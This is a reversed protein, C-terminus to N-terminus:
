LRSNDLYADNIEWSPGHEGHPSKRNSVLGIIREKTQRKAQSTKKASIHDDIKQFM